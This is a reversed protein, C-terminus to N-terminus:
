SLTLMYIYSINMTVSCYVSGIKCNKVNDNCNKSIDMDTGNSVNDNCIM